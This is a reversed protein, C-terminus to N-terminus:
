LKQLIIIIKEPTEDSYKKKIKKIADNLKIKVKSIDLEEINYNKQRLIDQDEKVTIKNKNVLFSTIKDKKPSYYDIEWNVVGVRPNEIIAFCNSLFAKQDDKQWTKFEKSSELIKLSEKLNNIM